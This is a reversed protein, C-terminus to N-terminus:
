NFDDMLQELTVNKSKMKKDVFKVALSAARMIFDKQSSKSQNLYTGLRFDQLILFAELNM